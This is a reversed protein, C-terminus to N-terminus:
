AKKVECYGDWLGIIQVFAGTGRYQEMKRQFVKGAYSLRQFKGEYVIGDKVTNVMVKYPREWDLGM